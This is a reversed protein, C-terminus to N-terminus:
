CFDNPKWYLSDVVCRKTPATNTADDKTSTQKEISNGFSSATSLALYLRFRRVRAAM